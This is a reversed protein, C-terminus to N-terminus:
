KCHKLCKGIEQEYAKMIKLDLNRLLPAKKLFKTEFIKVKVEKHVKEITANCFKSIHELDIFRKENKNNLYILGITPKDVISFPDHAIINPFTLMPTTLNIKFQYSEIGLKFDYVREWIVCIGVFTLLSNLLKNERNIKTNKCLYYMDKIDNKNLYIFDAESFSNPKDNERMVVLRGMYDVLRNMKEMLEEKSFSIAHIKYLSLVYRKEKSYRNKFFFVDKNYLYRPPENPNRQPGYFVLAYPKPRKLDEQLSQFRQRRKGKASKEREPPADDGQHEDHNCKLFADDKCSGISALSKEFKAM